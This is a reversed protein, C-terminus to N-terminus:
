FSCNCSAHLVGYRKAREEKKNSVALCAGTADGSPKQLGAPSTAATSSAQSSAATTRLKAAPASTAQVHGPTLPPTKTGCAPSAYACDMICGPFSCAAPVQKYAPIAVERPSSDCSVSIEFSRVGPFEVAPVTAKSAAPNSAAKQVADAAAKKANGSLTSAASTM